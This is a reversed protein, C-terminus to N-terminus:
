CGSSYLNTEDVEVKSNMMYPKVWAPVDPAKGNQLMEQWQEDTLRDGLPRVFEYYSLTAGRMLYTEGELNLLVYLANANGAAEYLVGNKECGLVNRTFVDAVVAVSRDPGKVDYWHYFDTMPDIVSLTFYELSSGMYRIQDNEESTLAEGRLEKEVVKICFELMERLRVTRDGLEENIFGSESLMGMNLDLMDLMQKWFPLNPEVYGKVEPAPLGGGGCEAAMPQEAYLIADHKLEAWSALASNLNKIKWADTQMFDPYNKDTQQLALLSQMWKNYMTDEWHYSQDFFRERLRKQEQVFGKWATADHYTSDIIAGATEVGFVDMVHLGRPYALESNPTEDYTSALVENDPVYRQPMFNLKDSCSFQVKPAIRNRGKFEQVLWNNVHQLTQEALAQELSSIGQEKLYDAVEIVSLNDPEGMLFELADYVGRGAKKDATPLQNFMQAMFVVRKLGLAEERCFSATQLWMMARFYHKLVENRTYNGRPKFLSYNFNVETELLASPADNCDMIHSIEFDFQSRMQEPVAVQSDDLLNLAIAFFTTNFDALQKLEENDSNVNMSSEVMARSMQALAPVFNFQELSKLVYSFYMHYAQLYVDTTIFSPICSYDNNEYIQFLQEYDTQEMAMNNQLLMTLFKDSPTQIQHLNVALAPNKLVIGQPSTFEKNKALEAMRADIKDVFAQEENSLNAQALYAPYATDYDKFDILPEYGNDENGWYLSDCLNYYWKTRSSYFANIDGEKIWIGKIAYPYYRLLRLEQYSLQSIDMNLDVTQPLEDGNLLESAPNFIELLAQNNNNQRQCATLASMAVLMLIILRKM